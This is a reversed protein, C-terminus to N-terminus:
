HKTPYTTAGLTLGIVVQAQRPLYTPLYSLHDNEAEHELIQLPDFPECRRGTEM